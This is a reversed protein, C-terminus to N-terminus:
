GALKKRSYRGLCSNVMIEDLMADILSLTPLTEDLTPLLESYTSLSSLSRCNFVSLDVYWRIRAIRIRHPLREGMIPKIISKKAMKRRCIRFLWDALSANARIQIWPALTASPHEKIKMRKRFVHVM